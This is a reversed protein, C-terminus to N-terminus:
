GEAYYSTSQRHSLRSRNEQGNDDLYLMAWVEFTIVRWLVDQIHTHTEYCTNVFSYDFIGRKQVNPLVKSTVFERFSDEYFYQELPSHLGEKKRYAFDHGFMTKALEKLSLKTKLSNERPDYARASHVLDEM